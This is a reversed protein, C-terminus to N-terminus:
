AIAEVAVRARRRVVEALGVGIRFTGPSGILILDFGHSTAHDCIVEARHGILVLTAVVLGHAAFREV